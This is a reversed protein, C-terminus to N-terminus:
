TSYGGFGFDLDDFTSGNFGFIPDDMFGVDNDYIPVTSEQLFTNYDVTTQPSQLTSNHTGGSISESSLSQITPQSKQQEREFTRIIANINLDSSSLDSNELHPGDDFTVGMRTMLGDIVRKARRTSWYVSQQIELVDLCRHLATHADSGCKKQAALHIHSNASVYTAYSIIHPTAKFCFHKEYTRLIQDVGFAATCCISFADLAIISSTSRLHGDQVFARHLLIVSINFM